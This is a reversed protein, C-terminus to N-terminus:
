ARTKCTTEKRRNEGGFSLVCKEDKRYIDCAGGMEIRKNQEDLYYLIQSVYLDYLEENHL